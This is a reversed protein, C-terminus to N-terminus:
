RSPAFKPPLPEREVPIRVQEGVVREEVRQETVSRSAATVTITDVTRPVSSPRASARRRNRPRAAVSVSSRSGITVGSITMPRDAQQQEEECSNSARPENELQGQRVDREADAVHRDDDARPRGPM